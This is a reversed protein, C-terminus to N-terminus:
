EEELANEDAAPEEVKLTKKGKGSASGVVGYKVQKSPKASASVSSSPESPPAPASASTASARAAARTRIISSSAGGDVRNKNAKGHYMSDDKDM